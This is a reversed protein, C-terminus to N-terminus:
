VLVHIKVYQRTRSRQWCGMAPPPASIFQSKRDEHVNQLEEKDNELEVELKKYRQMKGEIKRVKENCAQLEQSKKLKTSALEENLDKNEKSLQSLTDRLDNIQKQLRENDRM